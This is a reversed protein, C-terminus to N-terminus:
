KARIWFPYDIIQHLREELKKLKEPAGYYDRIRKTKGDLTLSVYTTPLDTKKGDYRDQLDWFKIEEFEKVLSDLKAPPIVCIFTGIKKINKKGLLIANGDGTITLDYVPCFGYCPTKEMKIILNEANYTHKSSSCGTFYILVLIIVIKKMNIDERSM